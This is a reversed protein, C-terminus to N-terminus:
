RTTDARMIEAALLVGRSERIPSATVLDVLDLLASNVRALPAGVTTVKKGQVRTMRTVHPVVVGVDGPVDLGLRAALEGVRVAQEGRICVVLDVPDTALLLDALHEDLRPGEGRVVPGLDAAVYTSALDRISSLDLEPAVLCARGYGAEDRLARVSVWWSAFDEAVWAADQPLAPRGISVTPVGHGSLFSGVDESVRPDLLIVGDVEATGGPLGVLERWSDSTAVLFGYGRRAGEISLGEFMETLVTPSAAELLQPPVYLVLRMTRGTALATAVARPRYDLAQAADRVRRAAEPSVPRNGSFVQSVTATSVGAEKAVDAITARVGGDDLV